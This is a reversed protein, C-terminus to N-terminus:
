TQCAWVTQPLCLSPFQASLRVRLAILFSVFLSGHAHEKAKKAADARKRVLYRHIQRANNM